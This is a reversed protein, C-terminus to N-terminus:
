ANLWKFAHMVNMVFINFRKGCPGRDLAGGYDAVSKGRPERGLKKIKGRIL